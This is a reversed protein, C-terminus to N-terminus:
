YSAWSGSVQVNVPTKWNNRFIVRISEGALHDSRGALTYFTNDTVDNTYAGQTGDDDQMAASVKYDGGVDSSSLYGNAGGYAKIQYSTYGAGHFSGVTTNYSVYGTGAYAIAAGLLLLAVALSLVKIPKSM